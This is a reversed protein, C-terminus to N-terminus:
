IGRKNNNEEDKRICYLIYESMSMSKLEARLKINEKEQESIRIKIESNKM